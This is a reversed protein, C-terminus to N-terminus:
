KSPSQFPFGILEFRSLDMLKSANSDIDIGVLGGDKDFDLVVGPAGEESEVSPKSTFEIYLSDTSPFYSITM